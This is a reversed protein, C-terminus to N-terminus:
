FHCNCGSGGTRSLCSVSCSMNLTWMHLMSSGSHIHLCEVQQNPSITHVVSWYSLITIQAKHTCLVEALAENQAQQVFKPGIPEPLDALGLTQGTESDRSTPLYLLDQRSSIPPEAQM